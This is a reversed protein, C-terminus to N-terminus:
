LLGLLALLGWGLGGIWVVTTVVGVGLLAIIRLIGPRTEEFSQSLDVGRSPPMTEATSM